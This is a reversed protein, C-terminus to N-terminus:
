PMSPLVFHIDRLLAFLLPLFDCGPFLLSESTAPDLPLDFPFYVDAKGSLCISIFVIYGEGRSFLQMTNLVSIM